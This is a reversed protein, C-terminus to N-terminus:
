QGRKQVIFLKTSDGIKLHAKKFSVAVIGKKYFLSETLTIDKSSKNKLVFVHGEFLDSKLGYAFDIKLGEVVVCELPDILPDGEDKVYLLRMFDIIQKQHSNVDGHDGNLSESRLSFSNQEESQISKTEKQRLVVQHTKIAIPELTMEQYDGNETILAISQSKTVNKLFLIGNQEDKETSVDEDLGMIDKIRDGQILLRTMGEKAVSAKLVKDDDMHLVQKSGFLAFSSSLFSILFYRMM